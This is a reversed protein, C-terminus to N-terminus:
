KKILLGIIAVRGTLDPSPDPFGDNIINILKEYIALSFNALVLTM